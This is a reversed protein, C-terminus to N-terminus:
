LSLAGQAPGSSDGGVNWAGLRSVVRASTQSCEKSGLSCVVLTPSPKHEAKQTKGSGELYPAGPTSNM